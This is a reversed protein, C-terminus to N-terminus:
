VRRKCGNRPQSRHCKGHGGLCECLPERFQRFVLPGERRVRWRICDLQFNRRAIDRPDFCITINIMAVLVPTYGLKAETVYVDITYGLESPFRLSLLYGSSVLKCFLARMPRATPVMNTAPPTWVIPVDQPM